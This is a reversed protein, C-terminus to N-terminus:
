KLELNELWVGPELSGKFGPLERAVLKGLCKLGEAM